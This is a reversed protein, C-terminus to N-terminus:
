KADPWLWSRVIEVVAQLREDSVGERYTAGMSHDVHGMTMDVAVQDKSEGGVTEFTHRCAYFSIRPRKLKLRKLLKAFEKGIADDPTGNRNTRVWRHGRQTVFVLGDDGRDKAAPRNPMWERLAEVTEPWLPCRREVATKPRPFDIWGNDLDVASQPLRSVDTQGFACNIGLLVMARLPQNANSIITRLEDAAFMRKGNKQRQQRVTKRSPKRFAQGFRVPRDILGDDFGFKFVSRIRQVENGLRIPGFQKALSARLREFDESRLDDVPRNRDFAEVIRNSATYYDRFSRESLEGAEVKLRKSNLLRNVLDAVTLTGPDVPPPTRGEKLYPWERNLQELARKGEPDDEIKGFYCTRGRIKKCWRGTPHPTMPFNPYPKKPKNTRRSKTSKPM